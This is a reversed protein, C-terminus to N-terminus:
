HSISGTPEQIRKVISVLKSLKKTKQYLWIERAPITDLVTSLARYFCILLQQIFLDQKAIRRVNMNIIM